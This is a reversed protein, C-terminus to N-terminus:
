VVLLFPFLDYQSVIFGERNVTGDELTVLVGAEGPVDPDEAFSKIKRNEVRFRTTSKLDARTAVGLADNGDTYVTVAGALRNAMRAVHAAFM